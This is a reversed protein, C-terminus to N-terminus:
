KPLSDSFTFTHALKQTQIRTCIYACMVNCQHIITYYTSTPNNTYYALAVAVSVKSVVSNTSNLLARVVCGHANGKAEYITYPKVQCTKEKGSFDAASLSVHSACAGWMCERVQVCEFVCVWVYLSLIRPEDASPFCIISTYTVQTLLTWCPEHCIYTPLTSM